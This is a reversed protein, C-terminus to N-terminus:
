PRANTWLLQPGMRADYKCILQSRVGQVRLDVRYSDGERRVSRVESVNQGSSSAQDLCARRASKESVPRRDAAIAPLALAFLLVGAFTAKM